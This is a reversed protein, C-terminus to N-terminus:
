FSLASMQLIPIIYLYQILCFTWGSKETLCRLFIQICNKALGISVPIYMIQLLLYYVYCIYGICMSYM